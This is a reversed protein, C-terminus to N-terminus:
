LFLRLCAAVPGAFYPSVTWGLAGLASSICSGILMRKKGFRDSIIGILLCTVVYGVFQVSVAISFLESPVGFTASVRGLSSFVVNATMAFLVLTFLVVITSYRLQRKSITSEM